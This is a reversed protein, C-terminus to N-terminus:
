SVGGLLMCVLLVGAVFAAAVVLSAIDQIM